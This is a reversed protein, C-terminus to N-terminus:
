ADTFRVTAGPVLLAPPSRRPDFLRAMATGILQWGAPCSIPYIASYEGALALAGAPVRVRPRVRRSVRLAPDGGTMYAFGPAFGIFAVTYLAAQHAAVVAEPSMRTLQAVHHLDPGDYTVPISVPVPAVGGGDAPEAAADQAAHLLDDQSIPSCWTILVTQHGAVVDILRGQFRKRLGEALCHVAANDELEFLAGRDGVPRLRAIAIV